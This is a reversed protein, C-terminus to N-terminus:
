RKRALTLGDALPLMVVDVRDDSAVFDNFAKIAKTNDDDAKADLVAGGWLVNDVGIVGNTRMRPLLAEYYNRYNPKDADIFAFDISADAPLSELTEVGPAIRLEIRDEVGAKQWYERAISTWEESVDCCLLNGDAPLGRAISLSSYGTFTGVEVARKAGIMRTFMTLFTGQEPAVQMNAIGGLKSTEEILARQVDDPPTGHAVLYAHAEETLFFSKPM